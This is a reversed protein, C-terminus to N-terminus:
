LFFYECFAIMPRIVAGRTTPPNIHRIIVAITLQVGLTVDDYAANVDNQM